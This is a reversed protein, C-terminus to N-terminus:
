SMPGQRGGSVDSRRPAIRLLRIWERTALESGNDLSLIRGELEHSQSWVRASQAEEFFNGNPVVGRLFETSISTQSAGGIV